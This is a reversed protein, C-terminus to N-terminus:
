SRLYGGRLVCLWDVVEKMKLLMQFTEGRPFTLTPGLLSRSRFVPFLVVSLALKSFVPVDLPLNISFTFYRVIKELKAGWIIAGLHKYEGRSFRFLWLFFGLIRKDYDGWIFYISEFTRNKFTHVLLILCCSIPFVWHLHSFILLM